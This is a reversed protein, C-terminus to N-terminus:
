KKAKGLAAQKEALAAAVDDLNKQAEALAATYSDVEAQKIEEDTREDVLPVKSEVWANFRADVEAQIDEETKAALEADAYYIADTFTIGNADTKTILVQHRITYDSM